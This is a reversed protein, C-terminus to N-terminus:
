VEAPAAVALVTWIAVVVQVVLLAVVQLAVNVPELAAAKAEAVEYEQATLSEVWAYVVPESGVDPVATVSTIPVDAVASTSVAHHM